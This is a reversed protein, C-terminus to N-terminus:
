TRTSSTAAVTRLASAAPPLTRTGVVLVGSPSTNAWRSSVEPLWNPTNVGAPQRAAPGPHTGGRGPGSLRLLTVSAARTISFEGLSGTHRSPSQSVAAPSGSVITLGCAPSVRGSDRSPYAPRTTSPPPWLAWWSGSGHNSASRFSSRRATASRTGVRAIQRPACNSAWAYPPRPALRTRLDPRSQHCAPVGGVRIRQERPHRERRVYQLPVEVLDGLKRGAGRQQGGGGPVGVLGEPDARAGPRHLEVDLAVGRQQPGPGVLVGLHEVLETVLGVLHYAAADAHQVVHGLHPPRERLPEGPQGAALQVDLGVAIRQPM